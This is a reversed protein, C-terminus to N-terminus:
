AGHDDVGGRRKGIGRGFDAFHDLGEFGAVVCEGKYLGAVILHLDSCVSKYATSRGTWTSRPVVARASKSRATPPDAVSTM